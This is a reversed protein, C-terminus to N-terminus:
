SVQDPTVTFVQSEGGITGIQVRIQFQQWGQPVEYVKYGTTSSGPIMITGMDFQDPLGTIASEVTAGDVYGNTTFDFPNFDESGNNTVTWSCLLYEYGAQPTNYEDGMSVSVSNLTASVDNCTFTSGVTYNQQAQNVASNDTQNTTGTDTSSTENSSGNSMCSFLLVLLVVIGVIILIVNRVTHSQKKNCYPCVKAQEPIDSGCYKCQKTKRQQNSQYNM